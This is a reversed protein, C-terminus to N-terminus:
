IVNVGLGILQTRANIGNIGGTTSGDTPQQNAFNNVNLISLTSLNPACSNAKTVPSVGTPSTSCLRYFYDLIWNVSRAELTMNRMTVSTIQNIGNFQFLEKTWPATWTPAATSGRWTQKIDLTRLKRPFWRNNATALPYFYQLPNSISGGGNNDLTLSVCNTLLDVNQYSTIIRNGSLTITTDGTASSLYTFDFTTLGTNYSCNFTKITNPLTKDWGLDLGVGDCKFFELKTGSLPASDPWAKITNETINGNRDFSGGNDGAILTWTNNPLPPISTTDSKSTVNLDNRQFQLNLTPATTAPLTPIFTLFNDQFYIKELRTASTFNTLTMNSNTLSNTYVEFDQLNTLNSFNMSFGAGFGSNTVSAKRNNYARFDILSSSFNSYTWATLANNFISFITLETFSSFYNSPNNTLNIIRLAGNNYVNFIGLSPTYTQAPLTAVIEELNGSVNEAAGVNGSDIIQFGANTVDSSLSGNRLRSGTLNVNIRPYNCYRIYFQQLTSPYSNQFNANLPNINGCYQM